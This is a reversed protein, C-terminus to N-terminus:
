AHLSGPYEQLLKFKFFFIEEICYFFLDTFIRTNQDQSQRDNSIMSTSHRQCFFVKRFKRPCTCEKLIGIDDFFKKDSHNYM